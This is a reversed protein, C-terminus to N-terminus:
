RPMADKISDIMVRTFEPFPFVIFFTRVQRGASAVGSEIVLVFENEIVMITDARRSMDALLEDILSQFTDTATVPVSHYINLGCFDHIATLYTGAMVNGIEELISIDAAGRRATVLNAKEALRTIEAKEREPLVFFIEGRVDGVMDMKVCVVPLGHDGLIAPVKKSLTLYIKPIDVEMRCGIMQSLASAAHGSGINIMERLYDIEKETLSGANPM